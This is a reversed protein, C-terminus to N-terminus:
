IKRDSSAARVVDVLAEVLRPPRFRPRWIMAITRYLPTGHLPRYVVRHNGNRRTAMEPLLSLGQGLAVLEQVTMLQASRCSVSPLYDQSRCFTVVQEGFCHMEDLLVFPERRLDEISVKTRRALPHRAPIAVLLTDQFLTEVRLRRENVPLALLGVDLEGSLCREILDHTFREEVILRARPFKKNFRKVIDPLFYPAVTLIGGITVTGSQWDDADRTCTRADDWADLISTARSYLAEGAETLKISRGLREFLPQGLEKELKQIQQSLSPQSVGSRAAAKTFNKLESVAVFYRLQHIEM